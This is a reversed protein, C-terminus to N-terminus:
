NIRETLINDLKSIFVDVNEKSFCLPPKMKLVEDYKGDSGTLIYNEKLKNKVHKCLNSGPSGDENTFEIGLFLGEGRVDGIVGHRNQLEHLNKKWYKGVELAGNQLNEEELVNLVTLGVETSVPNGGFSSFFEMGNNFTEAIASTTVVGALPFGNGMPKGIVVIDPSFEQMEFGWFWKGLRGFGIQVEDSITIIGKQQLWPVLEKLYGEILPLQGGCGSIPEVLFASFEKGEQIEKEIIDKAENVYDSARDFKGKYKKPLPLECITSRRGKGGPGNYKYASLSILESSHGHYGMEMVIRDSNGTSVSALRQALENAETGSNVFFVKNLQEPFLSLLRESYECLSANHYRTNTNLKRVQKSVAESIKPHSHGILPINNYADLYTNGDMDYMYQFAASSMFIPTSYSLGLASSFNNTRINSLAEKRSAEIREELGAAGLFSNNLFVPSWKIWKELLDWAGKESILIYATDVSESKAKASNCVSTCLRATILHPLINIEEESLQLDNTYGKIVECAVAIPLEKNMMVYALGIALECVKPACTVDGFDILGTVSQEDCLVNWDNFDNHIIQRDLNRLIPLASTEFQDFFYHVLKRREPELIYKQLPKNLNAMQLDWASIKSAINPAEANLLAKDLVAMSSGFSKLLSPTAEIDALFTGDIFPHLRAYCENEYHHISKGKRKLSESLQFPIDDKIKSIFSIEEKICALEKHDQYHKLVYSAGSDDTIKYNTSDYGALKKVDVAKLDFPILLENVEQLM